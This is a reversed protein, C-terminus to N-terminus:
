KLSKWLLERNKQLMRPSFGPQIPSPHLPHLVHSPPLHIFFPTLNLPPSPHNLLIRKPPPLPHSLTPPPLPLIPPQPLTLLPNLSVFLPQPLNWIPTFLTTPLNLTSYSPQPVLTKPTQRQIKIKLSKGNLTLIKTKLKFLNKVDILSIVMSM